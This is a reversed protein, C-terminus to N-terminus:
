ADRAAHSGLRARADALMVEVRARIIDTHRETLLSIGYAVVLVAASLGAGTVVLFASPQWRETGMVAADIFALIPYHVLYLTYSFSALLKAFSGYRTAMRTSPVDRPGPALLLILLAATAAGAAYDWFVPHTHSVRAATTVGAFVAFGFWAVWRPIVARLEGRAVCVGVGLLWVGFYKLFELGGGVVIVPAAFLLACARERLSSRRLLLAAGLPFLVYSWFEYGLSWLPSNTGYPRVIDGQLFLLNGAFSWLGITQRADDFRIMPAHVKGGYVNEAGFLHMGTLDLAATLVLAPVLVTLLRTLRRVM